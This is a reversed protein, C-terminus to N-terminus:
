GPSMRARRIRTEGITAIAVGAFILIGGIMLRLTIEEDLLSVALIGAVLPQIYIYLAVMSSEARKLAWNNLFYTVITPFLIVYMILTWTLGEIGAADTTQLGVMGLPVMMLAAFAFTWTTVTSPRYEKMLPRSIVLFGSFSFTNVIIFFIGLADDDSMSFNEVGILIGVGLFSVPIAAVKYWAFREQAGLLALVLTFVPINMMLVSANISSTHDVGIFFYTVNIVIGYFGCLAMLGYDRLSRVREYLFVRYVVLLICSTIAVRIFAYSFPDVGGNGMIAKSTAPLTGFIVSVLILAGHVRHSSAM